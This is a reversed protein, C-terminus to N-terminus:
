PFPFPLPLTKISIVLFLFEVHEWKGGLQDDYVTLGSKNKSLLGLKSYARLNPKVRSTWSFSSAKVSSTYKGLM